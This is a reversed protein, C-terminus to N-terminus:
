HPTRPSRPVSGPPVPQAEWSPVHPRPPEQPPPRKVLARRLEVDISSLLEPLSHIQVSAQTSWFAATQCVTSAAVELAARKLLGLCHRGRGGQAEGGGQSHGCEGHAARLVHLLWGRPPALAPPLLSSSPPLLHLLSRAAIGAAQRGQHAAGARWRLARDRHCRRPRRQRAPPFGARLEGPVPARTHHIHDHPATHPTAAPVRARLPGLSASAATARM